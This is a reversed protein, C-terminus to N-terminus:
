FYGLNPVAVLYLPPPFGEFRNRVVLCLWSQKLRHSRDEPFCMECGRYQFLAFASTSQPRRSAFNGMGRPDGSASLSGDFALEPSCVTMCCLQPFKRDFPFSLLQTRIVGVISDWHYISSPRDM